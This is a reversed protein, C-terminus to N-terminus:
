ALRGAPLQARGTTLGICVNYTMIYYRLDLAMKQGTGAPRGAHDQGSNGRRSLFFAQPGVTM